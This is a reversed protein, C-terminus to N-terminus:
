ACIAPQSLSRDGGSGTRAPKAACRGILGTRLLFVADRRPGRLLHAEQRPSGADASATKTKHGVPRVCVYGRPAPRLCRRRRRLLALRVRYGDQDQSSTRQARSRVKTGPLQLDRRELYALAFDDENSIPQDGGKVDIIALRRIALGVGEGSYFGDSDPGRHRIGASLQQLVERDGRRNDSYALGCIGCM